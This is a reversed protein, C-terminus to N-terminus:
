KKTVEESYTQLSLKERGFRFVKLVVLNAVFTYVHLLILPSYVLHVLDRNVILHKMQNEETCIQLLFKLRACNASSRALQPFIPQMGPFAFDQLVWKSRNGAEVQSLSQCLAVKMISRKATEQRQRFIFKSVYSHFWHLILFRCLELFICQETIKNGGRTQPEVPCEDHVFM